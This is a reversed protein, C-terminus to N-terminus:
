SARTLSESVLVAVQRDCVAARGRRAHAFLFTLRPTSVTHFWALHGEVRIGTEDTNVVPASQLARRVSEMVPELRTAVLRLGRLAPGTSLPLDWVDRLLERVRAFPILQYYHLYAILTLINPGYQVPARVGEPLTPPTRVFGTEPYFPQGGRAVRGGRFGAHPNGASPEEAM